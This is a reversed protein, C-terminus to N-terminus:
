RHYRALIGAREYQTIAVSYWRDHVIHLARKEVRFLLLAERSQSTSTSCSRDVYHFYSQHDSRRADNARCSRSSCRSPYAYNYRGSVGHITSRRWFTNQNLTVEERICNWDLPVLILFTVACNALMRSCRVTFHKHSLKTYNIRPNTILWTLYNSSCFFHLSFWTIIYM